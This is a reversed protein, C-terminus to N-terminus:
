AEGEGQARERQSLSYRSSKYCGESARAKWIDMERRAISSISCPPRVAAAGPKTQAKLKSSTYLAHGLLAPPLPFDSCWRALTGALPLAPHGSPFHLLFVGGRGRVQSDFTSLNGRM